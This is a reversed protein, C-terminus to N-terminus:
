CERGNLPKSVGGLNIRDFAEITHDGRRCRPAGARNGIKLSTTLLSRPELRRGRNIGIVRGRYIPMLLFSQPADGARSLALRALARRLVPGFDITRVKPM